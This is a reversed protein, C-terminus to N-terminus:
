MRSIQRADGAVSHVEKASFENYLARWEDSLVGLETPACLGRGPDGRVVVMESKTALPDEGALDSPRHGVVQFYTALYRGRAEGDPLHGIRGARDAERGEDIGEAMKGLALGHGPHDAAVEVRANRHGDGGTRVGEYQDTVASGAVGIALVEKVEDTVVVLDPGVPDDVVPLKVFV